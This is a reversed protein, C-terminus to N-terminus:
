FDDFRNGVANIVETANGFHSCLEAGETAFLNIDLLVSFGLSVEKWIHAPINYVDGAVWFGIRFENIHNLVVESGSGLPM